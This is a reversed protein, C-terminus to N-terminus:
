TKVSRSMEIKNLERTLGALRLDPKNMGRELVVWASKDGRELQEPGRTERRFDCGGEVEQV